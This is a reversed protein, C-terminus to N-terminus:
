EHKQFSPLSVSTQVSSLQERLTTYTDLLDLYHVLLADIDNSLKDSSSEDRSPM